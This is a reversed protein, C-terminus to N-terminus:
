SRGPLIRTHNFKKPSVKITLNRAQVLKKLKMMKRRVVQRERTKRTM